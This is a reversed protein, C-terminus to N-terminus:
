VMLGISHEVRASFLPFLKETDYRGGLKFDINTHTTEDCINLEDKLSNSCYCYSDLANIVHKYLFYLDNLCPLVLIQENQDRQVDM